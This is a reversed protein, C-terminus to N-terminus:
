RYFHRRMRCALGAPREVSALIQHKRADVPTNDQAQAAAFVVFLMLVAVIYRM